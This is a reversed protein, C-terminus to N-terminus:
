KIDVNANKFWEVYKENYKTIIFAGHSDEHSISFDYKKCIECIENIFQYPAFENLKEKLSEIDWTLSHYCSLLFDIDKKTEADYFTGLKFKSEIEKLQKKGEINLM